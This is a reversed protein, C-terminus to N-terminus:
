IETLTRNAEDVFSRLDIALLILSLNAGDLLEGDCRM